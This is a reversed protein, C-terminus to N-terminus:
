PTEKVSLDVLHLLRAGIEARDALLGKITGDIVNGLAAIKLGAAVNPDATFSPVIALGQTLEAAVADREAAPWDPAHTIRWEARPLLRAADAAVNAVWAKRAAPERWRRLLEDHLRQWGAALFAAARQQEGLRQRTQLNARAAAIREGRRAREEGFAARMQRRAEAHADGLLAAARARADDLIADCQRARDAEVLALLAQTQNAVSM